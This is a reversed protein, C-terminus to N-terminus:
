GIIEPKGHLKETEIRMNNEIYYCLEKYLKCTKLNTQNTNYLDHQEIVELLLVAIGLKEIM